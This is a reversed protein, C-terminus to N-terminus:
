RPLGTEAICEDSISETRAILSETALGKNAELEAVDQRTVRGALKNASCVCYKEIDQDPVQVNRTRLVEKFEKVCSAYAIRAVSAREKPTQAMAAFPAVLSLLCAAALLAFCIKM